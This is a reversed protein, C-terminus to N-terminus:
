GTRQNKRNIRLEQLAENTAVMVYFQLEGGSELPRLIEGLSNLKAKKVM